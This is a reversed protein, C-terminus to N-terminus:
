KRSGSSCDGQVQRIKTYDLRVMVTVHRREDIFKAFADRQHRPLDKKVRALSATALEQVAKTFDTSLKKTERRPPEPDRARAIERALERSKQRFPVYLEQYLSREREFIPSDFPIARREALVDEWVDEDTVLEPTQHGDAFEEVAHSHCLAYVAMAGGTGADVSRQLRERFDDEPAALLLMLLIANM